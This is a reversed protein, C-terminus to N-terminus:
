PGDNAVIGISIFDISKLHSLVKSEAVVKYEVCRESTELHSGSLILIFSNVLM